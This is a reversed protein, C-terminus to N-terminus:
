KNYGAGPQPKRVKEMWARVDAAPRLGTVGGLAAVCLAGCANAFRLSPRWEAGALRQHLLGAIFCDGAGTADAVTMAYAPLMLEGWEGAAYCGREGLKVVM